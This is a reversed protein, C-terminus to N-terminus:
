QGVPMNVQIVKFLLQGSTRVFAQDGQHMGVVLDTIHEINMRHPLKTSLIAGNKMGIRHLCYAMEWEVKTISGHMKNGPGPMFEMAGLSDTQQINILIYFNIGKYMAARLLAIHTCAGFVKVANYTERLGQFQSSGIVPFFASINLADLDIHHLLQLFM